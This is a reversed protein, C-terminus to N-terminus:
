LIYQSTYKGQKKLVKRKGHPRFFDQLYKDYYCNYEDTPAPPVKVKYHLHRRILKKKEKKQEESLEYDEYTEPGIQFTKFVKGGPNSTRLVQIMISYGSCIKTILQKKVFFNDQIVTTLLQLQQRVSIYLHINSLLFHLKQRVSISVDNDVADLEKSKEM